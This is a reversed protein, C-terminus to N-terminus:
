YKRRKTCEHTEIRDRLNPEDVSTVSTGTHAKHKCSVLWRVTTDGGPGTRTEAVIMDRGADSGRDPGAVIMFGEQALFERAFLEFQDRDMGAQATPIEKFDLVAM